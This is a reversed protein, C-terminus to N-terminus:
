NGDNVYLKRWYRSFSFFIRKMTEALNCVRYRHITEKFKGFKWDQLFIMSVSECYEVQNNFFYERRCCKDCLPCRYVWLIGSKKKQNKNRTGERGDNVVILNECEEDIFVFRPSDELKAAEDIYIGDLEGWSYCFKESLNGEQIFGHNKNSFLVLFILWTLIQM